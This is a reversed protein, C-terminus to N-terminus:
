VATEAKQAEDPAHLGAAPTDLSMVVYYSIRCAYKWVGVGL